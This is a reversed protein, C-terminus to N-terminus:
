LNAGAETEFVRVYQVHLPHAERKGATSLWTL